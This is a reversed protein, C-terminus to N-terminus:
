CDRGGLGPSIVQSLEQAIEYVSDGLHYTLVDVWDESPPPVPPPADKYFAGGGPTDKTVKQVLLFNGAPPVNGQHFGSPRYPPAIHADGGVFIHSDHARCIHGGQLYPASSFLTGVLPGPTPSRCIGSGKGKERAKGM